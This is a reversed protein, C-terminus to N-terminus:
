IVLKAIVSITPSNLEIRIGIICIKIKDKEKIRNFTADDLNHERYVFIEIPQIIENLDNVFEYMAHIGARSKIDCTCELIMGEVPYCIKCSYKTYYIINGRDIKPCSYEELVVSDPLVYGEKICKKEVANKIKNVLVDKISSTLEIPKLIVRHTLLSNVFLKDESILGSSVKKMSQQVGGSFSLDDM